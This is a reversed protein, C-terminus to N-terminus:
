DAPSPKGRNRLFQGKSQSRVLLRGGRGMARPDDRWATCCDPSQRCCHRLADGQPFFEIWRDATEFRPSQSSADMCLGTLARLEQLMAEIQLIALIFIAGPTEDKRNLLEFAGPLIQSPGIPSYETASTFDRLALAFNEAILRVQDNLTINQHYNKRPCWPNSRGNDVSHEAYPESWRQHDPLSSKPWRCM